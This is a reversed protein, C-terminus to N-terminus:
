DRAGCARRHAQDSLGSASYNQGAYFIQLGADTYRLVQGSALAITYLDAMVFSRATALFSKLEPTADIM